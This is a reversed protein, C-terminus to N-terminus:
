RHAYSLVRSVRWEGDVYRWVQSFEATGVHKEPGDGKREYFRHTGIQMAGHGPVPYVRMSDAVRERRSRVDPQLSPMPGTGDPLPEM